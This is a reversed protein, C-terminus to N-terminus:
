TPQNGMDETGAEDDPPPQGAAEGKAGCNQCVWTDEMRTFMWLGRALVAIGLLSYIYQLWSLMIALVVGIVIVGVSLLPNFRLVRMQEVLAGCQQCPPLEEPSLGTGSEKPQDGVHELRDTDTEQFGEADEESSGEDRASDEHPEPEAQKFPDNTELCKIFAEDNRISDFEQDEKAWDLCRLNLKVSRDLYVVAEESDGLMAYCCALNYLAEPYNPDELIAERFLEAAKDPQKKNFQVLGRDFLVKAKLKPM